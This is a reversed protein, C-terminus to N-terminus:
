IYYLILLRDNTERSEGICGRTVICIGLSPLHRRGGYLLRGRVSLGIGHLVITGGVRLPPYQAGDAPRILGESLGSGLGGHRKFPFCLHYRLETVLRSGGVLPRLKAVAFHGIQAYKRAYPAEPGMADRLARHPFDGRPLTTGGRSGFRAAQEMRRSSRVDWSGRAQYTQGGDGAPWRKRIPAFFGGERM